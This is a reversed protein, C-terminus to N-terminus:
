DEDTAWSPLPHWHTWDAGPAWTTLTASNRVKNIVLVKAGRPPLMQAIPIWKAKTDVVAAKDTTLKIM